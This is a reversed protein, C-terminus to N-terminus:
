KNGEVAPPVGSPMGCREIVGFLAWGRMAGVTAQHRCDRLAKNRRVNPETVSLYVWRHLASDATTYPQTSLKLAVRAGEGCWADCTRPASAIAQTHM